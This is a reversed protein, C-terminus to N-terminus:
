QKRSVSQNLDFGPFQTQSVGSYPDGIVDVRDRNEFTGSVNKGSTVTFPLASYFSMLSNVQWGRVLLKPGSSPSPLEYTIYSTFTHRVDFSSDGYDFRLDRSNAPTLGRVASADDISHGFTYSFKSTLNHWANSRISAIMGNYHANAGSGVQNITAYNPYQSYFPRLTNQVARIAATGLTSAPAENIDLVTLLHHSLSGIYGVEAAVGSTVQYQANLSFNQLSANKFGQDVSFVGYPGPPLTPNGFVPQGSVITYNARTTSFIPSPGAPNYILGTAGSNPPRNDGFANLNPSDYYIGYNGRLVFKNANGPSYAFGFRPAFNNYRAPYLSGIDKGVFNIGGKQPIFM